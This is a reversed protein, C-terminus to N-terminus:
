YIAMFSELKFVIISRNSVCIRFLFIKIVMFSLEYYFNWIHMFM